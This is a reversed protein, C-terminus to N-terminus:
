TKWLTIKLSWNWLIVYRSWLCSLIDHAIEVGGGKHRVYILHFFFMVVVIKRFKSAKKYFFWNAFFLTCFYGQLFKSVKENLWFFSKWNEFRCIFIQTTIFSGRLFYGIPPRRWSFFTMKSPSLNFKGRHLLFFFQM